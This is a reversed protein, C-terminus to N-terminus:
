LSNHSCRFASLSSTKLALILIGFYLFPCGMKQLAPASGACVCAALISCSTNEYIMYKLWVFGGPVSSVRYMQLSEVDSQDIDYDLDRLVGFFFGGKIRTLDGDERHRSRYIAAAQRPLAILMSLHLFCEVEVDDGDGRDKLLDLVKSFDIGYRQLSIRSGHEPGWHELM